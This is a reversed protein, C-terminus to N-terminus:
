RELAAKWDVERVIILPFGEARLKMAHEIKRGYTHHKWDESVEIGLVLYDLKRTVDGDAHGGRKIVAEECRSRIGFAFKGTYCFHKGPFVITPNEDAPIAAGDPQASGTDIFRNGSIQQLIGLLDDREEKSVVGDSMIEGIRAHIERGPFDACVARNESLWTSLFAVEQENVVGDAAIGSCIGILQDTARKLRHAANFNLREGNFGSM